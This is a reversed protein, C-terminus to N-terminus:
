VHDFLLVAEPKAAEPVPFMAENTVVFLVFEGIMEVIVTVGEYVL